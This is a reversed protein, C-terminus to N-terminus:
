QVQKSRTERVAHGRVTKRTEKYKYPKVSKPTAYYRNLLGYSIRRITYNDNYYLYLYPM